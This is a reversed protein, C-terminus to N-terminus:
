AMRRGLVGEGVLIFAILVLAYRWYNQQAEDQVADRRAEVTAVQSLRGIAAASGAIPRWEDVSRIFDDSDHNIVGDRDLVVLRTM